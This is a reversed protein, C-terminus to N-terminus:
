ENRLLDGFSSPYLADESIRKLESNHHSINSATANKNAPSISRSRDRRSPSQMYNGRNLAYPQSRFSGGSRNNSLSISNGQGLM